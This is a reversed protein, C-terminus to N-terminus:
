LPGDLALVIDMVTILNEVGDDTLAFGGIKTL